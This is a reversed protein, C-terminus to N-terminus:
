GKRRRLLFGAMAILAGAMLLYPTWDNSDYATPPPSTRRNTFTCTSDGVVQQAASRNTGSVSGNGNAAQWSTEYLSSPNTQVISYTTGDPVNLTAEQGSELTVEYTNNGVLKVNSSATVSMQSSPSLTIRYTFAQHADADLNGNVNDSRLTLTKMAPTYEGYLTTDQAMTGNLNAANTLAENTYWGKLTYTIGNVTKDPMAPAVSSLPDNTDLKVPAYNQVDTFQQSGVDKVKFTMENYTNLHITGNLRYNATQSAPYFNNAGPEVAQVAKLTDWSSITYYGPQRAQASNADAYVYQKGQYTINPYIAPGTIDPNFDMYNTQVAAKDVSLLPGASAQGQGLGVYTGDPLKGYSYINQKIYPGKVYIIGLTSQGAPIVIDGTSLTERVQGDWQYYTKYGQQALSNQSIDFTTQDPLYFRFVQSQIPMNWTYDGPGTETMQTNQFAPIAHIPYGAAPITFNPGPNSSTIAFSAKQQADSPGNIQTKIMLENMPEYKKYLTVNSEVPNKTKYTRSTQSEQVLDAKITCEPNTYFQTAYYEKGNWSKIYNLAINTVEGGEDVYGYRERTYTTSGPNMSYIAFTYRMPNLTITGNLWYVSGAQPTYASNDGAIVMNKAELSDWQITYENTGPTADATYAYTIGNYTINPYRAPYDITTSNDMLNVGTQAQGPLPLNVGTASATGLGMTALVQGSGDKINGYTYVANVPMYTAYLTTNANVTGDMDAKTTLNENTYWSSLKYTVGNQTMDSDPPNLSSLPDGQILPGPNFNRMTEFNTSGPYRVKFTVDHPIIRNLIVDGTMLYSIPNDSTTYMDNSGPRRNYASQIKTWNVTFYGPKTQQEPTAAYQYTYGGVTITAYGNIQTGTFSPSINQNPNDNPYLIDPHMTFLNLGLPWYGPRTVTPGWVKGTGMGYDSLLTTNKDDSYVVNAYTYVDYRIYPQKCNIFYFSENSSLTIPDSTNGRVIQHKWQWYTDYGQSSYDDEVIQFTTGVPMYFRIDSDDPLNLTYDNTGNKTIDSSIAPTYIDAPSNTTATLHWTFTQSPPNETNILERMRVYRSEVYKAYLTMSANVPANMDAKQTCAEDTYWNTLLNDGKVKELQANTPFTVAQLTDGANIEQTTDSWNTVSEYSTSGPYQVKFDITVKQAAREIARAKKPKEKPAMQALVIKEIQEGDFSVTNGNFDNSSALPHLNGDVVEYLVCPLTSDDLEFRAKFSGAIAPSLSWEKISEVSEDDTELTDRWAKAATTEEKIKVAALDLGTLEIGNARITTEVDDKEEDEEKAEEKPQEPEAPQPTDEVPEEVDNPTSSDPPPNTSEVPIEQQPAPVECEEAVQGTEETTEAVSPDEAPAESGAEEAQVPLVYSVSLTGTLALCFLGRLGTKM